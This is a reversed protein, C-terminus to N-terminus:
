IQIEAFVYIITESMSPFCREEYAEGIQRASGVYLAAHEWRAHEPLYGGLEQVKRINRGIFGPQCTSVLIIHGPLLQNLDIVKGLALEKQSLPGQVVLNGQPSDDPKLIIQSM